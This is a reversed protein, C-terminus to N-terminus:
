LNDEKEITNINKLLNAWYCKGEYKKRIAWALYDAVQLGLVRKSNRFEIEINPQIYRWMAFQYTLENEIYGQYSLNLRQINRDVFKEKKVLTTNRQDVTIFLPSELYCFCEIYLNKSLFNYIKEKHLCQFGKGENGPKHIIFGAKIDLQNLDRYIKQLYMKPNFTLKSTKLESITKYNFLHNAKIEVNRPWGNNWLYHNHRKIMKNLKDVIDKDKCFVMAIVFYEHIKNNGLDGSEDIFIYLGM